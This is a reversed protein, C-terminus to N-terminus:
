LAPSGPEIGPDPLDGPSPFPLGSWSEQRSFGLSQPAQYAVTWPTEFLQVCSFSKVESLSHGPRLRSRRSWTEQCHGESLWRAECAMIDGYRKSLGQADRVGVEGSRGWSWGVLDKCNLNSCMRGNQNFGPASVGEHSTASVYEQCIVNHKWSQVCLFSDIRMWVIISSYTITSNMSSSNVSCLM